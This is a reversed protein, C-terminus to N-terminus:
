FKIRLQFNSLNVQLGVVPMLAACMMGHAIILLMFNKLVKARVHIPIKHRCGRNVTLLRRVSTAGISSNVSERRRNAAAVAAATQMHYSIPAIGTRHSRSSIPSYAAM